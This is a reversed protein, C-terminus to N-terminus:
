LLRLPELVDVRDLLGKLEVLAGPGEGWLCCVTQPVGIWRCTTTSGVKGTRLHRYDHLGQIDHPFSTTAATAERM